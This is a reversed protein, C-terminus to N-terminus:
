DKTYSAVPTQKAWYTRGKKLFRPSFVFNYVFLTGKLEKLLKDELGHYFDKDPNIFVFDYESLDLDFFDKQLFEAKLDLKDKVENSKDILDKDFEIGTAKTFLSAILVVKGDGSGLDIFHKFKQLEIKQFFDFVDESIAAGWFGKETDGMPFKGNDYFSKYYDDYEKKIKNFQERLNDM